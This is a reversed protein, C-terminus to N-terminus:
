ILIIYYIDKQIKKKYLVLLLRDINIYYKKQKNLDMFYILKICITKKMMNIQDSVVSKNSLSNNEDSKGNIWDWM